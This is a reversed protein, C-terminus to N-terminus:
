SPAELKPVPIEYLEAANAYVIRDVTEQPIGDFQKELVERSHPWTGEPHPYDSGWMLCRAGTRAVNAIGVPDRQFTVRGQRRFYESPLAELKPRVFGHHDRYADDMADLTWALWGAGCEVMTVSLGPHRELVGSACLTAVTEMPGSVTIVYNVVAGGPGRAPTQSRGTGAHFSLPLGLGEAAEWLPEYAADNYRRFDPHAPLLAARLGLEACRALERVCADVDLVPLIGVPILREFQAFQAAVWDNYVACTATQLAADEIAYTCFFAVNPYMVEAFVGDRDLHAIRTAPDHPGWGAASREAKEGGGEAQPPSGFSRIVRGEVVFCHRGDRSELRPGRERLAPPLNRTWLDVPETVHCDASIALGIM